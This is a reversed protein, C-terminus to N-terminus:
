QNDYLDTVFKWTQHLVIKRITQYQINYKEAVTRMMKRDSADVTKRIDLVDAVSLKCVQDGHRIADASNQSPTGMCLHEKACCLKQGCLHRIVLGSPTKANMVSEAIVVHPMLNQYMYTVKGYERTIAGQWIQCPSTIEPDKSIGITPLLRQEIRSALNAYEEASLGQDIHERGRARGQNKQQQSKQHLAVNDRPGPLQAWSKCTDIDYVMSSLVGFQNARENTSQRTPDSEPKWSDKILQALEQTITASPNLEGALNTGDRIRDQGNQLATGFSLHEQEICHKFSCSHRVILSRGDSGVPSEKLNQSILLSVIHAYHKKGDFSIVGYEHKLARTWLLCGIDQDAEAEIRQSNAVLKLKIADVDWTIREQLKLHTGEICRFNGCTTVVSYTSKGRQLMMNPNCSQYVLRALDYINRLKKFGPRGNYLSMPWILCPLELGSDAVECKEQVEHVIDATNDTDLQYFM